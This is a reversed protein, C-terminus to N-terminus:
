AENTSAKLGVHRAYEGAIGTLRRLADAGVLLAVVPLVTLYHWEYALFAAPLASTFAIAASTRADRARIALAFSTRDEETPKTTSSMGKLQGAWM